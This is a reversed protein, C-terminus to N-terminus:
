QREPPPNNARGRGQPKDIPRGAKRAVGAERVIHRIYGGSMDFREAVERSSQGRVYARIIKERRYARDGRTLTPYRM